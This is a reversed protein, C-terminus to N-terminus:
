INDHECDEVNDGCEPCFYQPLKDILWLREDPEIQQLILLVEKLVHNVIENRLRNSYYEIVMEKDNMNESDKRYIWWTQFIMGCIVGFILCGLQIM